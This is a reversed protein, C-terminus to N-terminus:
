SFIVLPSWTKWNRSSILHFVFFYLFAESFQFRTLINKQFFSIFFLNSKWINLQYMHRVNKKMYKGFQSFCSGSSSIVLTAKVLCLLKTQSFLLWLKLFPAFHATDMFSRCFGWCHTYNKYWAGDLTSVWHCLHAHWVGVRGHFLRHGGDSGKTMEADGRGSGMPSRIM